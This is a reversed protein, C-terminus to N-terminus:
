RMSTPENRKESEVSLKQLACTRLLMILPHFIFAVNNTLDLTSKYVQTISDNDYEFLFM